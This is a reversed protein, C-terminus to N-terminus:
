PKTIASAFLINGGERVIFIFPRDVYFEKPKTIDLSTTRISLGTAAAAETGSEDVKIFVKQLVDSVVLNRSPTIGTFDADHSFIKKVGARSLASRLSTKYEVEFRPLKVDLLQKKLTRFTGDFNDQTLKAVVESLETGKDPLIVVASVGKTKYPLEIWQSNADKGYRLSANRNRMMKVKKNEGNPLAFDDEQTQQKNFKNLWEDFFYIASVAIVRNSPDVEDFLTKIKSNTNQDVWENISACANGPNSQFDVQEVKAAFNKKVTDVFDPLINFDKQIWLSTATKLPSGEKAYEKIKLSSVLNGIDGDYGLLSKLEAETEGKTGPVVLAVVLNAGYPSISVNDKKNGTTANRFLVLQDASWSTLPFGFMSLLVVVFVACATRTRCLQSKM